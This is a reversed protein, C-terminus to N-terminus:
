AAQGLLIEHWLREAEAYRMRATEHAAGTQRDTRRVHARGGGVVLYYVRARCECTWRLIRPRAELRMPPHWAVM